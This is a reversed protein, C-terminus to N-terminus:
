SYGRCLTQDREDPVYQNWQRSTLNARVEPCLAASVTQFRTSWYLESIAAVRGSAGAVYLVRGGRGFALAEGGGDDGNSVEGFSSATAVDWFVVGTGDGAVLTKGDPSFAVVDIGSGNGVLGDLVQRTEPDWLFTTGTDTGVALLKSNPSFAVDAFNIGFGNVEDGFSQDVGRHTALDWLMVQGGATGAALWKGNSSFAFSDVLTEESEGIPLRAVEKGTSVDWLLVNFSGVVLLKSDPSFALSGISSGDGV